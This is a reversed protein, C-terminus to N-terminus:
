RFRNRANRFALSHRATLVSTAVFILRKHLEPQKRWFVALWFTGTFCLLDVFQSVLAPAHLGEIHGMLVTTSVGVIPILTGLVVGFWGLRLHWAVRQLRVMSSQLAFFVPWSFFIAAHVYLIWQPPVDRHILNAGITFSFGRVVVAVILLSMFIYFYKAVASRVTIAVPRSNLQETRPVISLMPAPSVVM